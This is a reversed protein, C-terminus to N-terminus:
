AAAVYGWSSPHPSDGTVDWSSATSCTSSVTSCRPHVHCARAELRDTRRAISALLSPTLVAVAPTMTAAAFARAWMGSACEVAATISASGTPEEGGGARAIMFMESEVSDSDPRPGIQHRLERITAFPWM